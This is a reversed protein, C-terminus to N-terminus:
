GYPGCCSTSEPKGWFALPPLPQKLGTPTPLEDSCCGQFNDAEEECSCVPGVKLNDALSPCACLGMPHGLSGPLAIHVIQIYRLVLEFNLCLLWVESLLYIREGSLRM